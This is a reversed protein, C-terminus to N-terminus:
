WLVGVGLPWTYDYPRLDVVDACRYQAEGVGDGGLTVDDGTRDDEVLPGTGSSKGIIYRSRIGAVRVLDLLQERSVILIGALRHVQQHLVRVARSPNSSRSHAETSM